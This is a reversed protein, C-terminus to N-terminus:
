PVATSLHHVDTIRTDPFYHALIEGATAGGAALAAAGRQCLGLAHTSQESYGSSRAGHNDSPPHRLCWACDVAFYPYEKSGDRHLTRTRGGCRASYYAAVAAGRYSLVLGRTNWAALGAPADARPVDRLFQCHTTDCFAFLRHRRGQAVYFSRAVIAQAELAEPPADPPSEAEVVSAVATELDMTVTALISDTFGPNSASGSEAGAMRRLRLVGRFRRAIKDPLELTFSGGDPSGAIFEPCAIAVNGARLELSDHGLRVSATSGYGLTSDLGCGSISIPRGSEPRVLVAGPHFLGFVSVTVTQGRSGTPTIMMGLSAMMIAPAASRLIPLKSRRM